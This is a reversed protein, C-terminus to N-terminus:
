VSKERGEEIETPTRARFGALQRHHLDKYKCLILFSCGGYEECAGTRTGHDPFHRMAANLVPTGRWYDGWFGEVREDIQRLVDITALRFSELDEMTRLLLPTRGVKTTKGGKVLVNGRVGQIKDSGGPFLAHLVFTEGSVQSDWEFKEMRKNFWMGYASSKHEMVLPLGDELVILDPRVTFIYDRYGLEVSFTREILAVGKGDFAVQIKPYDPSNGRLSYEDYYNRLMTEAKVWDEEAKESEEYEGLLSDYEFRMVRIAGEVDWEGTDTGGRCGSQYLAAM